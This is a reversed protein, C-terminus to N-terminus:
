IGKDLKKVSQLYNVARQHLDHPYTFGLQEGVEIAVKQFLDITKWLADWNAEIDAGVYTAELETWLDPRLWRKLGRGYPGPKVSWQHEIEMHWELMRLLDEQTLYNDMVHRAALVDDRWLHKAVYTAEHFLLEVRRLYETETPPKPIYAKYTPPKLGTTLGDKDLLVRYGADFEDPLNPETVVRQVLEVQWLGFDIKLGTEYQTIYAFSESGFYTHIPDRYLVLVRGFDELWDRSEFFPHIDTVVVIVDYDSLKDLTANPVTRTSTLIMARVSTQREGWEILHPIVENEPPINLM